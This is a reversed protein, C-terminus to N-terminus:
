AGTDPPRGLALQLTSTVDPGDFSFGDAVLRQPLVYMDGLLQDSLEGLAARVAFGPARLVAPRGLLRALTETFDANTAPQPITVNYAGSSSTSSAAWLLVRLYDHLSVLPMRQNGDGLKAGLGLSWPIRMIGLPGGSRDLVPSTRLFVVRVGADVAAQAAAEWQVVVQSLYDQGAPSEETSARDTRATGYRSIGSAQILAPVSGPQCTGAIEALATALTSTTNVRSSRILERRGETWPRDAVGAGGLNVVVHVGDFAHRDLTHQDPNWRFETGTVPERRVLRVVQHGLEALRVRLATGLFGSAGALLFKV